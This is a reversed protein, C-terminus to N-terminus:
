NLIINRRQYTPIDLDEGDHLTPEGKDFRGKSINILPLQQQDATWLTPKSSAAEPKLASSSKPETENVTEVPKSVQRLIKNPETIITKVAM